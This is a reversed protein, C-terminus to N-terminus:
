PNAKVNLTIGSANSYGRIDIYWTGAAPSSVTCTENNGNKYPRCDYSSTTSQAGRRVYLDADGTGGSMTITLSSYGAPLVQTYHKWQSKSVSINTATGNIPELAGSNATFKGTLSVGSFSSYAKVRVYYKGGASTATCSETNGNKYPRCDYSSDTPASGFKVYMDADGTGGSMTFSINTAGAPVDMTYVVEQGTSATVNTTAVGNELVNGTPPTTGGTPCAGVGVACWATEVATKETAGYLDQAAQATATRAGAFDTNQNMYTSLARYFIKESKALGIGPVQV